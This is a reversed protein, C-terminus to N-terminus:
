HKPYYCYCFDTAIVDGYNEELWEDIAKLDSTDLMDAEMPEDYGEINVWVVGDIEFVGIVRPKELDSLGQAEDEGIILMTGITCDIPNEEESEEGGCVCSIRQRYIEHKFDDETFDCECENCHYITEGNENTSVVLNHEKCYPCCGQIDEKTIIIKKM